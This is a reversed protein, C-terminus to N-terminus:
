TCLTWFRMRNRRLGSLESEGLLTLLNRYTHRLTRNLEDLGAPSDMDPYSLRSRFVVM